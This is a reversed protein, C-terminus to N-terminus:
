LELKFYMELNKFFDIDFKTDPINIIDYEYESHNDMFNVINDIFKTSNFKKSVSTWKKTIYEIRTKSINVSIKPEFSIFENFFNHHNGYSTKTPEGCSEKKYYIYVTKTGTSSDTSSDTSSETSLALYYNEYIIEHKESDGDIPDGMYNDICYEEITFM